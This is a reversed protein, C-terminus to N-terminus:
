VSIKLKKLHDSLNETSIIEQSRTNMNRVIVTNEMSEKKGMILAYSMKLKEALAIQGGLMDRSLSQCVSIKAKRLMEIINLSKLKAEFGLQIFFYDSKKIKINSLINNALKKLYIKLVVGPIDKKLGVKKTLGDYRGGYALVERKKDVGRTIEFITQSCHRRDPVLSNNIRYNIGLIELGELIEKFHQRSQESLCSLAKPADENMTRCFGEKDYRLLAFPDKKLIQRCDSPMKEINKRYYNTLEKVFKSTSEKDGISNIDVCVDEIKNDAFIAIATKILVIESISKPSGLIHLNLFQEDASNRGHKGSAATNKYSLMIPQPEAILNKNIYNRLISIKEEISTESPSSVENDSRKNKEELIKAADDIDIQEITPQKAPIFGYYFATETAKDINKFETFKNKNASSTKNENSDLNKSEAKKKYQNSSYM